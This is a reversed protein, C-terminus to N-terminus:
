CARAVMLCVSSVPHLVSAAQGWAQWQYGWAGAERCAMASCIATTDVACALRHQRRGKRRCVGTFSSSCSPLQRCMDSCWGPTHPTPTPPHLPQDPPLGPQGPRV